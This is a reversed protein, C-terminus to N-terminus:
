YEFYKGPSSKPFDFALHNAVYFSKGARRPGAVAFVARTNIQAVFSDFLKRKVGGIEFDLRWQDNQELIMEEINM